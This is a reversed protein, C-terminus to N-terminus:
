EFAKTSTRGGSPKKKRIVLRNKSKEALLHPADLRKMSQYRLAQYEFALFLLLQLTAVLENRGKCAFQYRGEM